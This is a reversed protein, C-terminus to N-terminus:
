MRQIWYERLLCVSDCRLTFLLVKHLWKLCFSWALPFKTRNIPFMLLQYAYLIYYPSRQKSCVINHASTNTLKELGRFYPGFVSCWTVCIQKLNVPFCHFRHLLLQIRQQSTLSCYFSKCQQSVHEDESCLQAMEVYACKLCNLKIRCKM